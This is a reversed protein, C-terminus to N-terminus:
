LKFERLKGKPKDGEVLNGVHLGLKVKLMFKEHIIFSKHM